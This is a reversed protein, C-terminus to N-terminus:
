TRRIAYSGGPLPRWQGAPGRGESGFRMQELSAQARGLVAERDVLAAQLTKIERNLSRIYADSEAQNAQNARSGAFAAEAAQARATIEALSKASQQQWQSRATKLAEAATLEETARAAATQQMERRVRELEEQLQMLQPDRSGTTGARAASALAAEAIECRATVEALARASQQQWLAQAAKQRDAAVQDGTSKAALLEERELRLNAIEAQMQVWEADVKDSPGAAQASALATEAAQCRARLEGLAKATQQQWLSQALKLKEGAALEAAAKAAVIDGTERRLKELEAQFDRETERHHRESQARTTALAAEATECRTTIDALAKAAREQRETQAAAETAAAAKVAGIDAERERRTQDLQTQLQKIEAERGALASDAAARAAAIGSEQERRAQDLQAQLRKM